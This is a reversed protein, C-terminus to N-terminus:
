IKLKRDLGVVVLALLENKIILNLLQLINPSSKSHQRAVEAFKNDDVGFLPWLADFIYANIYYLPQLRKLSMFYTNINM